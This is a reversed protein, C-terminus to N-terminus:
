QYAACALRNALCKIDAPTIGDVYGFDGEDLMEAARVSGPEVGSEEILFYRFQMDSGISRIQRDLFFANGPLPHFAVFVARIGKGAGLFYKVEHGGGPHVPCIGIHLGKRLLFLM